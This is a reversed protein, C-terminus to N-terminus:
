APESDDLSQAGEDAVSPCGTRVGVDVCGNDAPAPGPGSEVVSADVDACGKDAAPPDAGAGLEFVAADVDECWGTGSRPEAAPPVVVESYVAIVCSM